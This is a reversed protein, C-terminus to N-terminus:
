APVPKCKVKKRPACAASSVGQCCNETLFAVLENMHDIEPAYYVFRGEQRSSVLGAYTLEKLHFSLTASAIELQEQIVGVSLGEPGATILLRYVALRTPQALASLAKIADKEKM